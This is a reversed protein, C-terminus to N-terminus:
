LALAEKLTNEVDSASINLVVLKANSNNCVSKVKDWNVMKIDSTTILLKTGSLGSLQNPIHQELQSTLYSKQGCKCEASLLANPAITRDFVKCEFATTNIAIVDPRTGGADGQVLRQKDEVSFGVGKLVDKAALELLEGKLHNLINDARRIEYVSADPDNMKLIAEKYGEWKEAMEPHNSMLEQIGEKTGISKEILEKIPDEHIEQVKEESLATKLEEQLQKREKACENRKRNFDNANQAPVSYEERSAGANVLEYFRASEGEGLKKYLAEKRELEQIRSEADARFRDIDDSPTFLEKESSSSSKTDDKQLSSEESTTDFGLKDLANAYVNDGRYPSDTNDSGGQQFDFRSEVDNASKGEPKAVEKFFSM